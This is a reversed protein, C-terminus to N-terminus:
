KAQPASAPTKVLRIIRVQRDTEKRSFLMPVDLRVMPIGPVYGAKAVLGLLEESPQQGDLLAIVAPEQLQKTFDPVESSLITLAPDVLKLNGIWHWNSM